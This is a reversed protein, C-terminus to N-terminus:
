ESHRFRKGAFNVAFHAIDFSKNCINFVAAEVNTGRLIRFVAFKEYKKGLSARLVISVTWVWGRMFISLAPRFAGEALSGSDPGFWEAATEVRIAIM